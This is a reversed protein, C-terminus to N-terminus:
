SRMNKSNKKDMESQIFLLQQELMEVKQMYFGNQKAMRIPNSYIARIEMQRGNDFDLKMSPSYPKMKDTMELMNNVFEHEIVAGCARAGALVEEMMDKVLQRSSPTKMIVDTATDLAVTLGNYPINWVLKKWRAVKLDPAIFLPVKAREFDTKMQSLLHEQPHQHVGVTLPGYDIHAIHGQGVRSSCIFAMGGMITTDPYVASLEEELGLGNQILVVVSNEHLLPALMEKLHINQTSKLAVIVVDCAPMDSTSKYANIPSVSFDGMVSDVQLGHIKVYDYESHFLFHVENGAHALRGGYYGGIAGAGIIAYKLKM